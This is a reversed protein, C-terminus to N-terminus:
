FCSLTPIESKSKKGTSQHELILFTKQVVNKWDLRFGKKVPKKWDEVLLVHVFVNKSCLIFM